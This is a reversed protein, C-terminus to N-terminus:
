LTLRDGRPDATIPDDTDLLRCRDNFHSQSASREKPDAAQWKEIFAQPIIRSGEFRQGGYV